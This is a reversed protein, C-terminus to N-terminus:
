LREKILLNAGTCKDASTEFIKNNTRNHCSVWEGQGQQKFFRPKIASIVKKADYAEKPMEGKEYMKAIINAEPFDASNHSAPYHTTSANVNTSATNGLVYTNGFGSSVSRAPTVWSLTKIYAGDGGTVEFGIFGNDLTLEAARLMVMDMMQSKSSYINGEAKVAWSDASLKEESYGGKFGTPGYPTPTSCAAVLFLSLFCCLFKSCDYCNKLM